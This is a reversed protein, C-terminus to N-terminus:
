PQALFSPEQRQTKGSRYNDGESFFFVNLKEIYKNKLIELIDPLIKNGCEGHELTPVDAFTAGTFCDSFVNKWLRWTLSLKANWSCIALFSEKGATLILLKQHAIKLTIYLVFGGNRRLISSFAQWGLFINRAVKLHPYSM